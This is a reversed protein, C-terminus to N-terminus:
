RHQSAPHVQTTSLRRRTKAGTCGCLPPAQWPQAHNQRATTARLRVAATAPAESPRHAISPPPAAQQKGMKNATQKHQLPPAPTNTTFDQAARSGLLAIQARAAHLQSTYSAELLLCDLAGQRGTHQNATKRGCAKSRCTTATPSSQRRRGQQAEVAVSHQSNCHELQYHSGQKGM